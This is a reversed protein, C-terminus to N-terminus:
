YRWLFYVFTMVGLLNRFTYIDDLWLVYCFRHPLIVFTSSKLIPLLDRIGTHRDQTKGVYDIVGNLKPYPHGQVGLQVFQIDDKLLDIVEQWRHYQKSPWGPEGGYIIIWYPGDILPKRDYEEQTLWIDPRTFGQQFTVGLKNQIDLRFANAMHFNWRNSKNTLFGPGIKVTVDDDAISRFQHDIHPNNDWIHMATSVVGVRTNPFQTKFDRVASTFTLIDGIAQRNHFIVEKPVKSEAVEKTEVVPATPKTKISSYSMLDEVIHDLLKKNPLIHHVHNDSFRISILIDTADNRKGIEENKIITEAEKRLMKRVNM